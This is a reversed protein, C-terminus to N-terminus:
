MFLFVLVRFHMRVHLTSLGYDYSKIYLVKGKVRDLDNMEKSTAQCIYCTMSSLTVSFVQCVKGEVMTLKMDPKIVFTGSDNKIITSKM